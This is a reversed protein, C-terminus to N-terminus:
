YELMRHEDGFAFTMEQVEGSLIQRAGGCSTMAEKFVWDQLKILAEKVLEDDM